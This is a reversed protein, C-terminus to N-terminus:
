PVETLSQIRVMRQPQRFRLPAIILILERNPQPRLYVRSKNADFVELQVTVEIAVHIDEIIRVFVFGAIIMVAILHTM